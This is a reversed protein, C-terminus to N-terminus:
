AKEDLVRELELCSTFRSLFRRYGAVDEPLPQCTASAADAFVRNQLFAELSEGEQRLIMFAALLAMGYPGGEGATTLCTVPVECAAALYRQGVGPTKFVGGHGM